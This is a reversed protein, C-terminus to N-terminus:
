IMRIVNSTWFPITCLLFLVIQWTISNVYFALFYAVFFGIILTFFWTILCFIFTSLYTKFTVCMDKEFNFCDKFIYSYNEFILDPIISYENYDWFSIIFTLTLPIFFFFIFILSYPISLLGVSPKLKLFKM